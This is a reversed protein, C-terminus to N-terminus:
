ALARAQVHLSFTRQSLNNQVAIPTLNDKSTAFYGVHKSPIGEPLGM